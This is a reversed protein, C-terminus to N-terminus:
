QAAENTKNLNFGEKTKIVSIEKQVDADVKVKDVEAKEQAKKIDKEADRQIREIKKKLNNDIDKKKKEGKSTAKEIKKAGRDNVVYDQASLGSIAASVAVFLVVTLVLKKM